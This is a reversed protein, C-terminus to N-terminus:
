TVLTILMTRHFCKCSSRMYIDNRALISFILVMHFIMPIYSVFSPCVSSFLSIFTYLLQFSFQIVNNFSKSSLWIWSKLDVCILTVTLDVWILWSISEFLSNYLDKLGFLWWYIQKLTQHALELTAKINYTEKELINKSRRQQLSLTGNRM